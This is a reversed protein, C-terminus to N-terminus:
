AASTFVRTLAGRNVDVFSGKFARWLKVGEPLRLYIARAVNLTVEPQREWREARAVEALDAGREHMRRVWREVHDAAALHDSKDGNCKKHALVLNEIGNDPYRAWPIFHDIHGADALGDDCYFCRREQLERLGERVRSTQAREVGFLFEELRADCLIDRNRKAIMSAWERQILPRLLGALRVLHEAAEGIFRISNDFSRPDNFDGKKIGDREWTIQYIFPTSVAGIYQLRPLPMHVLEWEVERVLKRYALPQELQVRALSAGPALTHKEQFELILRLIRAPNGSNQKLVGKGMFSEAHPWYLELVKRALQVTTVSTPAAGKETSQELCLDMLGLLVAYKYTAVFSGRGLLTLLKEAFAIAGRDAEPAGSM